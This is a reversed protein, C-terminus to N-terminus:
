DRGKGDGGDGGGEKAGEKEVELEYKDTSTARRKLFSLIPQLSATGLDVPILPRFELGWDELEWDWEEDWDDGIVSRYKYCHAVLPGTWRDAVKDGCLTKVAQNPPQKNALFNGDHQITIRSTPGVLPLKVESFSDFTTDGNLSWDAPIFRKLDDRDITM